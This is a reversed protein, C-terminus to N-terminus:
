LLELHHISKSRRYPELYVLGLHNFIDYENSAPLSKGTIMHVLGYENLTMNLELARLRMLINFKDSGTNYLIGYAWEKETFMRIDIQRGLMEDKKVIGILKRYGISFIDKLLESKKLTNKINQIDADKVIVDIDGSTTEGRRYSGTIMWITPKLILTFLNEYMKVEERPIRLQMDEYWKLGLLQSHTLHNQFSELDVISRVGLNHLEIAKVMGIGHISTLEDLIVKTTKLKDELKIYRKSTGTKLVEDIESLVSAGIGRIHVIQSGKTIVVPWTRIVDAAKEFTSSRYTEKLAIYYSTLKEFHDVLGINIEKKDHHPKSMNKEKGEAKEKEENEKEENEKEKEINLHNETHTTIKSQERLLESYEPITKLVEQIIDKDVKLSLSKVFTNILSVIDSM